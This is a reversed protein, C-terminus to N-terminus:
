APEKDFWDLINEWGLDSIAQQLRSRVDAPLSVSENNMFTYNEWGDPTLLDLLGYAAAKRIRKPYRRNELARWLSEEAQPSGLCAIARAIWCRTNEDRGEDHFIDDLASIFSADGFEELVHVAARRMDPDVSTHVVRLYEELHLPADPVIFQEPKGPYYHGPVPEKRTAAMTRTGRPKGFVERTLGGHRGLAIAKTLWAARDDPHM